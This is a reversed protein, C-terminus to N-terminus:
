ADEGLHRLGYLGGVVVGDGAEGREVDGRRFAYLDRQTGFVAPLGVDQGGGCTRSLLLGKVDHIVHRGVCYVQGHCAQVVETVFLVNVQHGDAPREDHGVADGEVISDGVQVELFRGSQVEIDAIDARRVVSCARCDKGVGRALHLDCLRLCVVGGQCGVFAYKKIISELNGQRAVDGVTAAHREGDRSLEITAAELAFKVHSDYCRVDPRLQDVDVVRRAVAIAIQVRALIGVESEVEGVRPVVVGEAWVDCQAVVFAVGADDRGWGGKRAQGDPGRGIDSKFDVNLIGGAFHRGDLENDTGGAALQHHFCGDM